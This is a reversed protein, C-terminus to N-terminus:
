KVPHVRTQYISYAGGQWVRTYQSWFQENVKFSAFESPGILVYDVEDRHLLVDAAPGGSYIRQIDAMRQSYDLGRSWM